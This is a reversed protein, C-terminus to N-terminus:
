RHKYSPLVGVDEKTIKSLQVLRQPPENKSPSRMSSTRISRVQPSVRRPSGVTRARSLPSSRSPPKRSSETTSAEARVSTKKKISLPEVGTPTPATTIPAKPTADINGAPFFPQRKSRPIGTPRAPASRQLKAANELALDDDMSPLETTSADLHQSGSKQPLLPTPPLPSPSRPGL